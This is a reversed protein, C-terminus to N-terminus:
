DSLHAPVRERVVLDGVPTAICLSFVLFRSSLTVKSSEEEAHGDEFGFTDGFSIDFSCVHDM